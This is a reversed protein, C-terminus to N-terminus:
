FTVKGLNRGDFTRRLYQAAREHVDPDELGRGLLRHNCPYCLIGRVRGSKHDHDVFMRRTGYFFKECIGCKGRQILLMKEFQDRTIGYRTMLFRNRRAEKPNPGSKLSRLQNLDPGNISGVTGQLRRSPSLSSPALSVKRGTSGPV